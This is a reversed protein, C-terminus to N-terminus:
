WGFWDFVIIVLIWFVIIWQVIMNVGADVLAKSQTRRNNINISVHRSRERMLDYLGVCALLEMLLLLIISIKM